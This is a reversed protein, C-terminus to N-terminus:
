EQVNARRQPIGSRRLSCLGATSKPADVSSGQLQTRRFKLFGYGSITVNSDGSVELRYTRIADQRPLPGSELPQVRPSIGPRVVVAPIRVFDVVADRTTVEFLRVQGHVTPGTSLTTVKVFAEAYVEIDAPISRWDVTVENHGPLTSWLEPNAGVADRLTRNIGAGLSIPSPVPVTSRAELDFVRQPLTRLLVVLDIAPAIVFTWAPFLAGVIAILIALRSAWKWFNPIRLHHDDSEASSPAHPRVPESADSEDRNTM